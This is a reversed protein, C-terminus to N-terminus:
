KEKRRRNRRMKREIVIAFVVLLVIIGFTILLWVPLILVTRVVVEAKDGIAVEQTVKFLGFSPADDWNIEQERVVSEGNPFVRIEVAKDAPTEYILGGGFLANEIKIRGFAAFDVNGCNEVVASTVLPASFQWFNVTQRIVKGCAALDDGEVRTGVTIGIQKVGSIMGGQSSPESNPDIRNIFAFYQGGGRANEPVNVRFPVTKIEGSKLGIPGKDIEIWEQIQNFSSARILDVNKYDASYSFPSIGILVSIDNQGENYIRYVGEYSEGPTLTLDRLKGPSVGLGYQLDDQVKIKATEHATIDVAYVEPGAGASVFLALAAALGVFSLHKLKLTM